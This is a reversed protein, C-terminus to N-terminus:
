RRPPLPWARATSACTVPGGDLHHGTLTVVDGLRASTQGDPLEAALLVPFPPLPAGRGGAFHRRLRGQRADAGAAADQSPRTSEILM